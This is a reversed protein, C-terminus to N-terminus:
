SESEEASVRRRALRQLTQSTVLLTVATSLVLTITLIWIERGILGFHEILGVGAPVFLLTLYKLLGEGMTRLSSPVSGRIMLGILLILMGLVPGPVPLALWRSIVEGLFQCGLLISMGVILGM